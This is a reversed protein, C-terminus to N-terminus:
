EFHFKVVRGWEPRWGPNRDLGAKRIPLSTNNIDTVFDIHTSSLYLRGPCDFLNLALAKATSAPRDLKIGIISRIAPISRVLWHALHRAIGQATLRKYGALPAKGYRGQILADSSAGPLYARLLSLVRAVGDTAKWSMEVLLFGNDSWLRLRKRFVAWVFRQGPDHLLRFWEPPLRYTDSSGMGAGIATQPARDDMVALLSWTDDDEYQALRRGLLARAIAELLAWRGVDAVPDCYTRYCDPLDLDDLLNILYWVGGLRTTIEHGNWVIEKEDWAMEPSAAELGGTDELDSKEQPTVPSAEIDDESIPAEAKETFLSFSKRGQEHFTLCRATDLAKRSVPAAASALPPSIITQRHSPSSLGGKIIKGDTNPERWWRSVTQQFGVRRTVHPRRQLMLGLALLATQPKTLVAPVVGDGLWADWFSEPAVTTAQGLPLSSHRAPAPGDKSRFVEGKKKEQSPIFLPTKEKEDTQSAYSSETIESALLHLGWSHLMRATVAVAEATSLRVLVPAVKQWHTLLNVVPAVLQPADFLVKCIDNTSSLSEIETPCVDQVYRWWWRTPTQAAGTVGDVLLCAVLEAEDSFLLADARHAVMGGQPRVAKQYMKQMCAKLHSEWAPDPLTNSVKLNLQRPQPDSLTRVLLIAAPPLHDPAIEMRDLSETLCLRLAPGDPQSSHLRLRGIRTSTDHM